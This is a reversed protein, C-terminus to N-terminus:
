RAIPSPTRDLVTQCNPPLSDAHNVNVQALVNQLPDVVWKTVDFGPKLTLHQETGAVKLTEADTKGNATKPDGDLEIPLAITFPTASKTQCVLMDVTGANEIWTIQLRPIDGGLVWQQFFTSVDQGSVEEAVAWFDDTTASRDAFRASYTQLTKFFAEDGIQQRLMHLVFGGKLYSDTEFTEAPAPKIIATTRRERTVAAEWGFLIPLAAQQGYRAEATLYEAYSAFGENLWIEAWNKLGVSDGFWHHSMEHTIFRETEAPTQSAFSDPMVTMSQAEMGVADQPVLVQGYSTYPFPGFLKIEVNMWYGTDAFASAAANIDKAYAYVTLPIGSPGDPLRRSTYDAIAVVVLYSAMPKPMDWVFTHTGDGNDIPAGQPQGNAVATLGNDVTIHFTYSSRDRPHDNCPFWTHATDPEDVAFARQTKSDVTMGTPLFGLYASDVTSMTGGYTVALKFTAGFQVPHPLTIALKQANDDHTFKVAAGDLTVASAKLVSLDLTLSALQEFTAQVDLTAVGNLTNHTLDFRLALDYHQVHYGTNGLTPTFTDGISPGGAIPEIHAADLLPKIPSDAVGFAAYLDNIWWRVPSFPAPTSKSARLLGILDGSQTDFAFSDTSENSNLTLTSGLLSLDGVTATSGDKGVAAALTVAQGATLANSLRAAPTTISDPPADLQLLAVDSDASAYLLAKVAIPKSAGAFTVTTQHSLDFPLCTASATTAAAWKMDGYEDTCLAFDTATQGSATKGAVIQSLRHRPSTFLSPQAGAFLGQATISHAFTLVLGAGVYVGSTTNLKNGTSDVTTLTVLSDLAPKAAAAHMPLAGLAGVALLIATLGQVTRKLSRM